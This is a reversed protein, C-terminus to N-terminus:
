AGAAAALAAVTETGDLVHRLHIETLPLLEDGHVATLAAGSEGILQAVAPRIDAPCLITAPTGPPAQGAAWSLMRRWREFGMGDAAERTAPPVSDLGAVINRLLILLTYSVLAVEATRTKSLEGKEARALAQQIM